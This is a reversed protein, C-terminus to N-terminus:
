ESEFVASDGGVPEIGAQVGDPKLVSRLTQGTASTKARLRNDAGPVPAANGKFELAFVLEKMDAGERGEHDGSATRLTALSQTTVLRNDLSIRSWRRPSVTGAFHPPGKESLSLLADAWKRLHGRAKQQGPSNLGLGGWEGQDHVLWQECAARM